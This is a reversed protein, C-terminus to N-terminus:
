GGLILALSLLGLARQCNVNKPRRVDDLNIGIVGPYRKLYRYLVGGFCSNCREYGAFYRAQGDPSRVGAMVDGPTM